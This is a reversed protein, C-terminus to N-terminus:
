TPWPPLPGTLDLEVGGPASVEALGVADVDLGFAQAVSVLLHQHPMGSPRLLGEGAVLDLPGDKPWHVATGAPFAWDGGILVVGCDVYGHWADGLENGWVVLTDDLLSRGGVDVEALRDVLYRVQEAHFAGYVTMGEKAVPDDFVSHALDNHVDGAGYDGYGIDVAPINGLSVTAVRTLDCALAAVVLDAFAEFELGYVGSDIPRDLRGELERVLQAHDELRRRDEAGLTPLTRQYEALAFDLASGRGGLLPDTSTALGFVRDWARRPFEEMPVQQREGRHSIPVGDLLSLELAPLAPGGVHAAVLQDISPGRAHIRSGDLLVRGGTWAHVWGKEHRYGPIDLEATALSLGDLVTLRDRVGHLPRLIPSFEAESLGWLPLSWPQDDPLGDVRIRWNDYVVGHRTSLVILRKPAEQAQLRSPLALSAAGLGLAQLFRRRDVIV